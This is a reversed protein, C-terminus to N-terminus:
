VKWGRKRLPRLESSTWQEGTAGMMTPGTGTAMLVFYGIVAAASTLGIGALLGRQFDGPVFPLTLLTPLAVIAFAALLLRWNRRVFRRQTSRAKGTAWSGARDDHSLRRERRGDASLSFM